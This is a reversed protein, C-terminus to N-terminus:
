LISITMPYTKEESPALTQVHHKHAFVDDEDSMVSSGNWPEICVFPASQKIPSWFACTEYGSFDVMVGKGTDKHVVSVKRSNLNDFFAADNDFLDYRLPLINTHNLLKIRNENDFCMTDFDFVPCTADEEQEFELQYDTFAEGENLPCNIGPHMGLTFVMSDKDTNKVTCDMHLDAGELYYTMTLTFHYPYMKLTRESESLSLAVKHEERSVVTFEAERCFGHKPMDYWEGKFITKNNRVNGVSPFLIPSCKDWYKPDRQWLYEKGNADTFSIMQAGLTDISAVAFENKITIIM